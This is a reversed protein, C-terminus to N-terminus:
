HKEWFTTVDPANLTLPPTALPVLQVWMLWFYWSWPAASLFQLVQPLLTLTPSWFLTQQPILPPPRFFLDPAPLSLTALSHLIKYFLVLLEYNKIFMRATWTQLLTLPPNSSSVLTPAMFKLKKNGKMRGKKWHIMQNEKRGGEGGHPLPLSPM